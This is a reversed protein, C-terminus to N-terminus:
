FAKRKDKSKSDKGILRKPYIINFKSLIYNYNWTPNQIVLKDIEDKNEKISFLFLAIEDYLINSSQLKVNVYKSNIKVGDIHINNINFDNNIKLDKISDILNYKDSYDKKSYLISLHNNNHFELICLERDYRSNNQSFLIYQKYNDDNDKVYLAIDINFMLCSISITYHSGWSNSNKIYDFELKVLTEKSINNTDDDGFYNM